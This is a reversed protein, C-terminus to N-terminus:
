IRFRADVGNVRVLYEGPEFPGKLRVTHEIRVLSMVCFESTWYSEIRVDIVNGRRTQAVLGVRTCPTGGGEVHLSVAAPAEDTVVRASSVSLLGPNFVGPTTPAKEGAGCAVPLLALLLMVRM